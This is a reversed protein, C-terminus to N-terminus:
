QSAMSFAPFAPPLLFAPIQYSVGSSAKPDVTGLSYPSPSPVTGQIAESGMSSILIVGVHANEVVDGEMAAKEEEAQQEKIQMRDQARTRSYRTAHSGDVVEHWMKVLTYM